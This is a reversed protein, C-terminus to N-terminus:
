ADGEDGEQEKRTVQQLWAANEGALITEINMVFEHFPAQATQYKGAQTQFLLKERKIAEATVRYQTWLEQHKQLALIGESIAILVGGVGVAVKLYWLEDTIFGSLFPILVSVALILIRIRKYRRQNFAAKKELWNFQDDVRETMYDQETM